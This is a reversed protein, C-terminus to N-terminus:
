RTLSILDEDLLVSSSTVDGAGTPIAQNLVALLRAAVDPCRDAVENAEWRDDPKAYLEAMPAAVLGAADASCRPPTRLMWAPTRIAREGNDGTATIWRPASAGPLSLDARLLSESPGAFAVACHFWDSLTAHVARPSLLQPSRPPPPCDDPKLVVCPIHLLESYLQQVATGVAGHEGLAFGRCGLLVVLTDNLLQSDDLAAMLGAFCDDLVMVQAAYASRYLLSEDQDHVQVAAPPPVFTPASPDGEDLLRGRFELPADWPGHFARAHLWLLQSADGQRKSWRRLHDAAAAFLQGLATQEISEATKGPGPDIQEIEAFGACEALSAVRSDDTLLSAAIGRAGFLSGPVGGRAGEKTLAKGPAGSWVTAYFDELKASTCWMWDALRAQSAFEDLAPTPHWTNGYAGLASARLGDVAIVIANPMAPLIAIAHSVQSATVGRLERNM